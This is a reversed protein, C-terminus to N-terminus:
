LRAGGSQLSRGRCDVMRHGDACRCRRHRGLRPEDIVGAGGASMRLGGHGWCCLVVLGGRGARRAAGSGGGGRLGAFLGLQLAAPLQFPVAAVDFVSLVLLFGVVFAFLALLLFTSGRRRCGIRCVRSRRELFRFTSEKKTSAGLVCKGSGPDLRPLAQPRFGFSSPRVLPGAM